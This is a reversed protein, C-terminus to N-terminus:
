DGVHRKPQACAASVRWIVISEDDPGRELEDPVTFRAIRSRQEHKRM